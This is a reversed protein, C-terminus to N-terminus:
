HLCCYFYLLLYLDLLKRMLYSYKLFLNPFAALFKLREPSLRKKKSQKEIPLCPFAGDFAYLWTWINKISLIKNSNTQRHM